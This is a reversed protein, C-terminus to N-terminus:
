LSRGVLTAPVHRSIQDSVSGLLARRVPGLGRSGVVVLDASSNESEKLLQHTASGSLVSGEAKFGRKRLQTCAAEVLRWGHEMREKELSLSEPVSGFPPGPPYVAISMWPDAVSTTVQFTCRAPDLLEAALRMTAEAHRSGDTAFLINGTNTPGRHAVLVSCSAHHLVFTSVSGLLLNGM